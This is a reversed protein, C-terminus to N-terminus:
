TGPSAEEGEWSGDQEEDRDKGPKNKELNEEQASYERYHDFIGWDDSWSKDSEADSYCDEEESAAVGSNGQQEAPRQRRVHEGVASGAESIEDYKDQVCLLHMVGFLSPFSVAGGPQCDVELDLPHELPAKTDSDSDDVSQVFALSSKTKPANLPGQVSSTNETNELGMCGAGAKIAMTPTSPDNFSLKSEEYNDCGKSSDLETPTGDM